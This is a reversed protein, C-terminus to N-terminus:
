DKLNIFKLKITTDIKPTMPNILDNFITDLITPVKKQQMKTKLNKAENNKIFFFSLVILILILALIELFLRYNKSIFDAIKFHIDIEHIEKFYGNEILLQEIDTYNESLVELKVGGLSNSILPDANITYEDKLRTQFGESEIFSNITYAELSYNFTRITIWENTNM